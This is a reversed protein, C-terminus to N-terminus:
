YKVVEYTELLEKKYEALMKEFLPARLIDAIEKYREELTKTHAPNIKIMKFFMHKGDDTEVWKLEGEYMKTIFRRSELIEDEALWYPELWDIHKELKGLKMKQTIEDETFVSVEIFGKQVRYMAHVKEPHAYYYDEIEQKTVVLRSGIKLHLLSDVTRHMQLQKVGEEYTYGAGSFMLKIQADTLGHQKKLDLMYKNIAEEPVPIKYIQTAVYDMIAFMIIDDATQKEGNISLRNLDSHTFILPSTDTFVKAEIYNITELASSAKKTVEEKKALVTSSFLMAITLMNWMPVNMLTKKMVCGEKLVNM